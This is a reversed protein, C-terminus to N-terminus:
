GLYYKFKRLALVDCFSMLFPCSLLSALKINYIHYITKRDTNSMCVLIMTTLTILKHIGRLHMLPWCLYQRMKHAIFIKACIWPCRVGLSNRKFIVLRKALQASWVSYKLTNKTTFGTRPEHTKKPRAFIRMIWIRLVEAMNWNLWTIYKIQHNFYTFLSKIM